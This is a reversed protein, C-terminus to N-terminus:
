KEEVMTMTQLDITIEFCGRTCLDGMVKPCYPDGQTCDHTDAEQKLLHIYETAMFEM